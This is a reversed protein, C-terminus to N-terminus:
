VRVPGRAIVNIPGFWNIGADFGTGDPVAIKTPLATANWVNLPAFNM